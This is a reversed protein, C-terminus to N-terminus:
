QLQCKSIKTLLEAERMEPYKEILAIMIELNFKLYKNNHGKCKVMLFQLTSMIPEFLTAINQENTECIIYNNLFASVSSKAM